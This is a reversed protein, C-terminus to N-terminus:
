KYKFVRFGKVKGTESVLDFNFAKKNKLKEIEKDTFFFEGDTRKITGKALGSFIAMSKKFAEESVKDPFSGSMAQKYLNGNVSSYGKVAIEDINSGFEKVRGSDLRNLVTSGVMKKFDDSEGAAEAYVLAAGKLTFPDM